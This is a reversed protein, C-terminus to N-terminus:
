SAGAHGAFRASHRKKDRRCERDRGRHGQTGHRLGNVLVDIMAVAMLARVRIVPDHDVGKRVVGDDYVVSRILIPKVATDPIPWIMPMVDNDCRRDAHEDRHQRREVRRQHEAADRVVVRVVRVVDPARLLMLVLDDIRRL